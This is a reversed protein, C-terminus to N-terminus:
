MYNLEFLLLFTFIRFLMVRFLSFVLLVYEALDGLQRLLGVLGAMTVGELLAESDDNETAGRLESKGLGYENRIEYRLLPMEGIM